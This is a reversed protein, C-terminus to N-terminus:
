QNKLKMIIKQMDEPMEAIFVKKEGAMDFLVLKQSHLAQGKIAFGHKRPLYKPDGVIPNGIHAMHVRIQHTRGTMLKLRVLTYQGYREEVTYLTIAERGNKEVVAMRQRDKPDRGILTEVRGEDEKINGHVIALYERIATKSQIQSALEIHSSDNKAVVMVGSTDKDLRHVIGPRICGNIGSLDHCHYLLANVLTGSYNGVAPHVVMGRVKNVVIMDKDECLIVLPINEAEAQLPKPPQYEIKFQEGGKLRYNQKVPKGDVSVLGTNMLKQMNARSLSMAQALFVDARQGKMTPEVDLCKIDENDDTLGEQTFSGM